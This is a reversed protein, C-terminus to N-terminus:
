GTDWEFTYLGDSAGAYFAGDQTRSNAYIVNVDTPPPNIGGVIPEALWLERVVGSGLTDTLIFPVGQYLEIDLVPGSRTWNASM